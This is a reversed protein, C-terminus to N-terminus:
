ADVGGGKNQEGTEGAPVRVYEAQGGQWGGTLHSYGFFGGTPQTTNHQTTHTHCISRPTTNNSNNSDPGPPNEPSAHLRTLGDAGRGERARNAQEGRRVQGYM